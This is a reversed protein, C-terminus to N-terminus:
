SAAVRWIAAADGHGLADLAEAGLLLNIRWDGILVADPRLPVAPPKGLRAPIPLEGAVDPPAGARLARLAGAADGLAWLGEARTQGLWALVRRSIPDRGSPGQWGAALGAVFRGEDDRTAGCAAGLAFGWTAPCPRIGLAAALAVSEVRVARRREAIVLRRLREATDPAALEIPALEPHTRYLLRWYWGSAAWGVNVLVVDQRRREVRQAYLLPFVLHDSAVLLVGDPPMDALWAEALTRPLDVGARNRAHLPREGVMAGVIMLGAAAVVAAPPRLRAALGALGAPLLWLAPALYSQFDPVDPDFRALNFAFLVGTVLPALWLPFRRLLRGTTFWGIIGLAVAPLAGHLLLWGVETVVNAPIQGWAQHDTHAYDRLAFYDRAGALTEWEGWVLRDTRGIVWPVYAYPLLGILAGVFAAGIAKLTTGFGGRMLMPLACLGAGLAAALAFVPNVAAGLGALVGLGLWTAAGDRAEDAARMGGALLLLSLLTAPAYLEIRSAQDWLPVLVGVAILLLCRIVPPLTPAARRALADAPLACLGATIASLANMAVLPDLGPIRALLGAAFTYLPQGPPHGLGWEQAVLALEGTDFWMLGRAMTLLSWLTLIAAAVGGPWRAPAGADVPEAM